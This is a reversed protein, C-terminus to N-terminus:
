KKVEEAILVLDYLTKDLFIINGAEEECLINYKWRGNSQCVLSGSGFQHYNGSCSAHIRRQIGIADERNTKTLDM